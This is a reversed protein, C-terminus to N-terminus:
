PSTPSNRWPQIIALDAIHYLDLGVGRGVGLLHVRGRRRVGPPTATGPRPIAVPRGRELLEGQRGPRLGADLQDPPPAALAQLAGAEQGQPDTRSPAGWAALGGCTGVASPPLQGHTPQQDFPRGALGLRDLVPQRAERVIDRHHLQDAEALQAPADLHDKRLQCFPPHPGDPSTPLVYRIEVKDDTVVVRDILLEVLLRRQAFTATVLGARVTQCFAQIGDTIARLELRQEAIADLQRQQTALTARRRDLEQRKHELEALGVVEALYADLLRQHQRDLQGLAQRITTQRAQLQQPLWAGGRARQLARAVQAPDCLLACLDAWVLEDLQEAPTYRATCRKGQAARLADTRGRCLYYRYGAQTRRVTCSLRCRGCSVLARLLHQHRTNRAATQQNTDLKAQVRAFTEESVIQPVPV